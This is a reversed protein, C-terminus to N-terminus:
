KRLASVVRNNLLHSAPTVHLSISLHVDALAGSHGGELSQPTYLAKIRNSFPISWSISRSEPVSLRGIVYDFSVSGCDNHLHLLNKGLSHGATFHLWLKRKISQFDLGILFRDSGFWLETWVILSAITKLTSWREGSVLGAAKLFTVIIGM